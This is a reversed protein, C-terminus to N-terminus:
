PQPLLLKLCVTVNYGCIGSSAQRIKMQLESSFQLTKRLLVGVAHFYFWILETMQTRRTAIRGGWLPPASPRHISSAGPVMMFCSLPVVLQSQSPLFSPAALAAIELNGINKAHRWSVLWFPLVSPLSLHGGSHFVISELLPGLTSMPSLYSGLHCPDQCAKLCLIGTQKSNITKQKNEEM